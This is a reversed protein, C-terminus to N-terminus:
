VSESSDAKADSAEGSESKDAEEAGGSGEAARKKARRTNEIAITRTKADRIANEAGEIIESADALDFGSSRYPVARGDDEGDQFDFLEARAARLVEGARMMRELQQTLTVYTQETVSEEFGSHEPRVPRRYPTNLMVGM